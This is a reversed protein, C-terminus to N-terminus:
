YIQRMEVKSEQDTGKARVLGIRTVQKSFRAQKSAGKDEGDDLVQQALSVKRM